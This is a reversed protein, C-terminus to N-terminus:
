SSRETTSGLERVLGDLMDRARNACDILRAPEVPHALRLARAIDARSKLTPCPTIGLEEIIGSLKQNREFVTLRAGTWASALTMHYRSTLVTQHGLMTTTLDALPANAYDPCHFSIRSRELEPLAQFLCTESGPLPRIEQCLWSTEPGIENLADALATGDFHSVDAILCVGVGPRPPQAFAVGGGEFALHAVDAGLRVKHPSFGATMMASLCRRDRVWIFSALRHIEQAQPTELAADDNLGTGVLGTPVGHGAAQRMDAVVRNLLWPGEDSQFVSGGLGLWLDADCVAARHNSENAPVWDFRPFRHRMAQIDHACLITIRWDLSRQELWRLLGALVLDDGVNGAGWFDTGILIHLPPAGEISATRRGAPTTPTWM